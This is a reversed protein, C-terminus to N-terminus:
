LNGSGTVGDCWAQPPPGLCGSFAWCGLDSTLVSVTVGTVNNNHLTLANHLAVLTSKQHLMPTRTLPISNSHMNQKSYTEHGSAFYLTSCHKPTFLSSIERNLNYLFFLSCLMGLTLTDLQCLFSMGLNDFQRSPLQSVIPPCPVHSYKPRLRGREWVGPKGLLTSINVSDIMVSFTTCICM